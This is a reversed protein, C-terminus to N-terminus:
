VVAVGRWSGNGKYLVNTADGDVNVRRMILDNVLMLGTGCSLTDSLLIHVYKYIWLICLINSERLIEWILINFIRQWM